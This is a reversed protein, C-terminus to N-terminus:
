KKSFTILGIIDNEIISSYVCIIDNYDLWAYNGSACPNSTFKGVCYDYPTGFRTLHWEGVSSHIVLKEGSKVIFCEMKESNDVWTELTISRDTANHFNIFKSVENFSNM